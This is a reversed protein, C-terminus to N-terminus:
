YLARFAEVLDVKWLVGRVLHQALLQQKSDCLTSFPKCEHTTPTGATFEPDSIFQRWAYSYICTASFIVNCYISYEM